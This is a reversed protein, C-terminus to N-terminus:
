MPIGCCHTYTSSTSDCCGTVCLTGSSQPPVRVAEAIVVSSLFDSSLVRAARPWARWLWSLYLYAMAILPTMSVVSHSSSIGLILSTWNLSKEKKKLKKIFFNQIYLFHVGKVTALSSQDSFIHWVFQLFRYTQDKYYSQLM